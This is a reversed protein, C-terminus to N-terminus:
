VPAEGDDQATCPLVDTGKGKRYPRLSHRFASPTMGMAGKFVTAFYTASCFGCAAAIEEVSKGTSALLARARQIRERKVYEGFTCGMLSKFLQCIYCKSLYTERAIRGLTLEGTLHGRVYACIREIHTRQARNQRLKGAYADLIAAGAKCLADASHGVGARAYLRNEYCCRSFSIGLQFLLYNYLSRNLSTLLIIATEDPLAGGERSTLQGVRRGFLAKAVAAGERLLAECFQSHDYLLEWADMQVTHGARCGM